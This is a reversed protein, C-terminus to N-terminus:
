QSEQTEPNWAFFDAADEEGGDPADATRYPVSIPVWKSRDQSCPRNM